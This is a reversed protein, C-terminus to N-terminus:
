TWPEHTYSRQSNWKRCQVKCGWSQQLWRNTSLWRVEEGMGECVGGMQCGNFVREM